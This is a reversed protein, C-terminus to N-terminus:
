NEFSKYVTYLYPSTDSLEAIKDCGSYSSCGTDFYLKSSSGCSSDTLCSLGESMAYIRGTGDRFIQYNDTNNPRSIRSLINSNSIDEVYIADDTIVFLAGFKAIVKEITENVFSRTSVLSPSAALSYLYKYLTGQNYYIIYFQTANKKVIVPVDTSSNSLVAKTSGTGDGIIYAGEIGFDFMNADQFILPAGVDLIFLGDPIVIHIQSEDFDATGTTFSDALVATYSNTVSNYTTRYIDLDYNNTRVKKRLILPKPVEAIVDHYWKILVTREPDSSDADGGSQSDGSDEEVSGVEDWASEWASGTGPAYAWDATSSCWGPIKCSYLTDGSVVVDNLAYSTGAVYQDHSSDGSSDESGSGQSYLDWASEWASGSGPAYHIASSSSCWGAIKCSYLNGNASVVDGVQYETGAVYQPFGAFTSGGPLDAIAQWNSIDIQAQNVNNYLNDLSTSSTYANNGDYIAIFINWRGAVLDWGLSLKFGNTMDTPLDIRTSTGGVVITFGLSTDPLNRTDIYGVYGRQIDLINGNSDLRYTALNGNIADINVFPVNLPVFGDTYGVMTSNPLTNYIFNRVYRLMDGDYFEHVINNSIIFPDSNYLEANTNEYSYGPSKSNSRTVFRFNQLEEINDTSLDASGVLNAFYGEAVNSNQKEEVLSDIALSDMRFNYALASVIVMFVFGFILVALLASGKDKKYM